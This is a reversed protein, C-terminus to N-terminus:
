KGWYLYIYSLGGTQFASTDSYRSEFIHMSISISISILMISNGYVSSLILMPKSDCWAMVCLNGAGQGNQNYYPGPDEDNLFKSKIQSPLGRRNPRVTGTLGVGMEALRFALSPSTYFNDTFVHHGSPDGLAKLLDVCTQETKPIDTIETGTFLKWDLLYGTKSECINISEIGSVAAKRPITVKHKFRGDFKVLSEDISVEKDPQYM